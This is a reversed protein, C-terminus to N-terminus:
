GATQGSPLIVTGGSRSIADQIDSPPEVETILGDFEHFGAVKHRAIRGLKSSDALVFSRASHRIMIKRVAVEDLHYDTLGADADIGGSGLFAVDAQLDAFFEQAQANSLALDGRRLRGGSVLVEVNSRDALEAAVLLSCTAVVGSFDQPIARAVCVATTGVDIFLTQGPEIQDMAAIGIQKKADAAAGSRESFSAEDGRKPLTSTAGGHVRALLGGKELEAFDRRITELSVDLDRALDQASVVRLRTLEQRIRYRREVPLM